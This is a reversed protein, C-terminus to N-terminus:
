VTDRVSHVHIGVVDSRVMMGLVVQTLVRVACSKVTRSETIMVSLGLSYDNLFADDDSSM